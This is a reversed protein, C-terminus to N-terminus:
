NGIRLPWNGTFGLKEIIWGLIIWGLKDDQGQASGFSRMSM